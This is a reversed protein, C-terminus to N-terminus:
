FFRRERGAGGTGTPGGESESPSEGGENDSWSEGGESESGSEGGESNSGSERGESDSGSERDSSEYSVSESKEETEMDIFGVALSSPCPPPPLGFFQLWQQLRHNRCRALYVRCRLQM